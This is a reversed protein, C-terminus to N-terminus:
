MTSHGCAVPGPPSPRRRCGPRSGPGRRGRSRSTRSRSRNRGPGPCRGDASAVAQPDNELELDLQEPALEKPWHPATYVIRGSADKLLLIIRNTYDEGFTFELSGALREYNGRGAFLGPHRSALTRIERDEAAIRMGHVLFWMVAGSAILVVGSIGASLLAIKLRSPLPKM